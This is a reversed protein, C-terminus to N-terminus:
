CGCGGNDINTAITRSAAMQPMINGVPPAFYYPQYAVFYSPGQQFDDPNAAESLSGAIPRTTGNQSQDEAGRRNVFWVLAALAVITLIVGFTEESM